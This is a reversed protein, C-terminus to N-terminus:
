TMDVSHEVLYPCGLGPGLLHRADRLSRFAAGAERATRILAPLESPRAILARLVADIDAEGNARFGAQAARPLARYATDSVARLIAFPAGAGTLLHSEMDVAVAGTERRLAGKAEPTAVMAGGSAFDGRHAGPLAAILRDTWAADAAIGNVATGILLDGTKFAPDLGGCLGFSVIGVPRGRAMAATLGAPGIV